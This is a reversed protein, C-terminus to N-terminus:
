KSLNPYKKKTNKRRGQTHIFISIDILDSLLDSAKSM